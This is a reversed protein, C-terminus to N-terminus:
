SRASYSWGCKPCSAIGHPIVEGCELCDIDGEPASFLLETIPPPIFWEIRGCVSCVYNSAPRNEWVPNYFISRIPSLSWSHEFFEENDCHPCRLQRDAIFVPM